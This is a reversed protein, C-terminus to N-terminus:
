RMTVTKTWQMLPREYSHWAVSLHVFLLEHTYKRIRSIALMAKWWIGVSLWIFLSVLLCIIMFKRHGKASFMLLKWSPGGVKLKNWQIRGICRPANRWGTKTGWLLEDFTMEYTNTNHISTSVEEWRKLHEESNERDMNTYYKKLFDEAQELVEEKSRPAKNPYAVLDLM